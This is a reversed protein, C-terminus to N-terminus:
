VGSARAAAAAASRSMTQTASGAATCCTSSRMRGARRGPWIRTCVLVTERSAKLLIATPSADWGGAISVADTVALLGAADGATKEIALQALSRAAESLRADDGPRSRGATEFREHVAAIASQEVSAASLVVAVLWSM